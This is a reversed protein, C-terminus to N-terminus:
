FQAHQHCCLETFVRFIALTCVTLPHITHYIFSIGIFNKLKKLAREEHGVGLLVWLLTMLVESQAQCMAPTGDIYFYVPIVSRLPLLQVLAPHCSM